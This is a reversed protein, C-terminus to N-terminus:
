DLQKLQNTAWEKGNNIARITGEKTTNLETKIKDSVNRYTNSLANLWNQVLQKWQEAKKWVYAVSSEVWRYVAEKANRLKQKWKDITRDVSKGTSEFFWEQPRNNPM